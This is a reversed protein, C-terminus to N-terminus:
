TILSSWRMTCRPRTKRARTTRSRRSTRTVRQISRSLRTQVSATQCRCRSPKGRMTSKFRQALGRASQVPRDCALTRTLLGLLSFSLCVPPRSVVELQVQQAELDALIGACWGWQQDFVEGLGVDQFYEAVTMHQCRVREAEWRDNQDRVFSKSVGWHRSDALKIAQKIDRHWQEATAADSCTFSVRQGKLAADPHVAEHVTVSLTGEHQEINAFSLPLEGADSSLVVGRAGRDELVVPLQAADDNVQVLRHEGVRGTGTADPVDGAGSAQASAGRDPEEGGGLLGDSLTEARPM